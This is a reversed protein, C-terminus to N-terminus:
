IVACTITRILYAQGQKCCVESERQDILFCEERCNDDRRRGGPRLGVESDGEKRRRRLWTQAFAERIHQGINRFRSRELRTERGFNLKRGRRVFALEVGRGRPRQLRARARRYEHGDEDDDDAAVEQQVTEHGEVRTKVVADSRIVTDNRSHEAAIHVVDTAHVAVRRVGRRGGETACEIQVRQPGRSVGDVAFPVSVEDGGLRLDLLLADDRLVIHRLMPSNRLLM